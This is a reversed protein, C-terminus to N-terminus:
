EYNYPKGAFNPFAKNRWDNLLDSRESEANAWDDIQLDISGDASELKNYLKLENWLLIKIM